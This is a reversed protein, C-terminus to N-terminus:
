AVGLRDRLIIMGDRIRTKVTGLPVQLLAAVERHTYGGYYALRIADRQMETLTELAKLVRDVDARLVAVDAVDDATEQFEKIGQALDRKSSSATARVKDVARRHAITCIWSRASGRGADYRTAYQWVEVFVEQLVEESLGSDRVVRKILGFVLPASEDYLVEFAGEDGLAVRSLLSDLTEAESDSRASGPLKMVGMTGYTAKM